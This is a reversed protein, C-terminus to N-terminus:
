KKTRSIDASEANIQIPKDHMLSRGKQIKSEVLNVAALVTVRHLRIVIEDNICELSCIKPPIKKAFKEEAM